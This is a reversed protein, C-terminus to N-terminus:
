DCTKAEAMPKAIELQFLQQLAGTLENRGPMEKLQRALASSIRQSIHASLTVLAVEQDETFPGFQERLQEMEQTCILELRERMASITSLVTESLLKTRFGSAEQAILREAVPLMTVRQERLDMAACLDDLDHAVVGSLTRVNPDVTRPVSLDMIVIHKDKRERMVIELEERTLLVRQSAASVVVDARLVQEWLNEAHAAKVGCQRALQQAHDWSRNVVMVAGAGARQFERVTALAMPGAGLVLVRKQRLDGVSDSCVAVAAEAVTTMNASSGMEQRVQSAVTFAKTMLADLFRGTTSARQAQQWAALLSNTAEAEGFVAADAGSAVRLVHLVAADGVLRYYNSWEMLKLNISRTLYRLISNAAESADQTWVLFETRNCNSLVIVEDIADSRVLAILAEAKQTASLLFRERLALKASRLSIGIVVLTPEVTTEQSEYRSLCM